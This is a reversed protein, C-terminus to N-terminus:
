NESHVVKGSREARQHKGPGRKFNTKVVPKNPSGLDSSLGEEVSTGPFDGIAPTRLIRFKADLGTSGELGKNHAAIQRALSEGSM